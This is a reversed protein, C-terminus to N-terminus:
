KGAFKGLVSSMCLFIGEVGSHAQSFSIEQYISSMQTVDFVVYLQIITDLFIGRQCQHCCLMDHYLCIKLSSISTLIIDKTENKNKDM